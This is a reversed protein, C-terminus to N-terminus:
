EDLLVNAYELLAQFDQVFEIVLDIGIYLMRKGCIANTAMEAVAQIKIMREQVSHLQAPDVVVAPLSVFPDPFITQCGYLLHHFGNLSQFPDRPQM